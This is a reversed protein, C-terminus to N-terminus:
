TALVDLLFGVTLVLLALAKTWTPASGVLTAVSEFLASYFVPIFVTISIIFQITSEILAMMGGPDSAVVVSAGLGVVVLFVPVFFFFVLPLWWAIGFLWAALLTVGTSVVIYLVLGILTNRIIHPALAEAEERHESPIGERISTAFAQLRSEGIIDVIIFLGAGFQLLKAFRGIWVISVLGWLDLDVTSPCSVWAKLVAVLDAYGSCDTLAVIM